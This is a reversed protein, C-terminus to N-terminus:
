LLFRSENFWSVHKWDETPSGIHVSTETEQEQSVPPTSLSAKQQLLGDEGLNLINAM